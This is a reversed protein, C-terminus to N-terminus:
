FFSVCGTALIKEAQLAMSGKSHTGLKQVTESVVEKILKVKKYFWARAVEGEFMPELKAWSVGEELKAKFMRYALDDLESLMCMVSLALERYYISDYSEYSILGEFSPTSDVVDENFAVELSVRKKSWTDKGGFIRNKLSKKFYNERHAESLNKKSIEWELLLAEQYCDRFPKRSRYSLSHVFGKWKESLPFDKM